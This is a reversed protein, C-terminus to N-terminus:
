EDDLLDLNVARRPAGAGAAREDDSRAVASRWLARLGANMAEHEGAPAGTPQGGNLDPETGGGYHLRLQKAAVPNEILARRFPESKLLSAVFKEDSLARTAGEARAHARVDKLVQEVAAARGELGMVGSRIEAAKAKDPHANLLTELYAQDFYAATGSVQQKVAEFEADQALEKQRIEGLAWTEGQDALQKLAWRDGAEAMRRIPDVDGREARDLAHQRELRQREQAVERDKRAQWAREREALEAQTLTVTEPAGADDGAEPAPAAQEGERAGSADAAPERAGLGRGLGRLLRNMFGSETERPADSAAEGAPATPQDQPEAHQVTQDDM